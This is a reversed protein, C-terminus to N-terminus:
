PPTLPDAMVASPVLSLAEPRPMGARAGSAQGDSTRRKRPGVGLEGVVRLVDLPVDAEVAATDASPIHSTM